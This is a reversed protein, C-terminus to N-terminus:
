VLLPYPLERDPMGREYTIFESWAKARKYIRLEDIIVNADQGSTWTGLTLSGAVDFKSVRGVYQNLVQGDAYLVLEGDERADEDDKDSLNRWTVAIQTWRSPWQPWTNWGAWQGHEARIVSHGRVSFAPFDTISEKFVAFNGPGNVHMIQRERGDHWNDKSLVWFEITGQDLNLVDAPFLIFNGDGLWYGSGILGPVFAGADDPNSLVGLHQQVEAASDFNEYLVVDTPAPEAPEPHTDCAAIGLALLLSAILWWRRM